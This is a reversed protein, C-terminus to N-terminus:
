GRGAGRRKFFRGHVAAPGAGAVGGVAGGGSKGQMHTTPTVRYSSSLTLPLLPRPPALSRVSKKSASLNTTYPYESHIYVHPSLPSTFASPRNLPSLHTVCTCTASPLLEFAIKSNATSGATTTRSGATSASSVIARPARAGSAPRLTLPPPPPHPPRRHHRPPPPLPPRVVWTLTSQAARRQAGSM